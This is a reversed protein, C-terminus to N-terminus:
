IWPYISHWFSHVQLNEHIQVDERYWVPTPMLQAALILRRNHDFSDQLEEYNEIFQQRPMNAAAADKVYQRTYEERQRELKIVEISVVRRREVMDFIFYPLLFYGGLLAVLLVVAAIIRRSRGSQSNYVHNEYSM